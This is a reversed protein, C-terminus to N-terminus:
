EGAKQSEIGALAEVQNQYLSMMHNYNELYEGELATGYVYGSIYEKNEDSEDLSLLYQKTQNFYTQQSYQNMALQMYIDILEKASHEACGQDDAHYGLPLGTVKVLNVIKDLNVQDDYKYSYQQNNIVLGAEITNKCIMSLEEIKIYRVEEFTPVYPEPEPIPEPKPPEVWPVNNNCLEVKNPEDEYTRYLYTYDERVTQVIGNHENVLNFGSLLVKKVPIKSDNFILRVQNEGIQSFEGDYAIKKAGNFVIKSM